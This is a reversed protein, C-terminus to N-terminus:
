QKNFIEDFDKREFAELQGGRTANYIKIGTRDSYKRAEAYSKNMRKIPAPLIKEGAQRYNKVFHNSTGKHTIVNGEKSNKEDAYQHDCGIIYIPNLGMHVAIQLNQFTVTGGDFAGIELNDSFVEQFLAEDILHNWYVYNATTKSNLYSSIHIIETYNHILEKTKEWVLPDAITQMTPRWKTKKFALYIKNSAISIENTLLDLDSMKLSPGNGIVFGRRNKYKDRLSNWYSRHIKKYRLQMLMFISARKVLFQPEKIYGLLRNM